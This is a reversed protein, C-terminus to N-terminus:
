KPKIHISLQYGGEKNRSLADLGVEDLQPDTKQKTLQALFGDLAQLSTTSLTLTVASDKAITAETIKIDPPLNNTIFAFLAAKKSDKLIEKISAIREKLTILYNEKDKQNTISQEALAVSSDVQELKTSQLVRIVLAGSTVAVLLILAFVSFQNALSIQLKKKHESLLEPPLLNILKSTRIPQSSTLVQAM